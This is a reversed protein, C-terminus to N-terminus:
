VSVDPSTPEVKRTRTVPVFAAPEASAVDVSVATTSASGGTFM